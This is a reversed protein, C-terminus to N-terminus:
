VNLNEGVSMLLAAVVKHIGAAGYGGLHGTDRADAVVHHFVGGGELLQGGTQEYLPLFLKSVRGVLERQLKVIAEADSPEEKLINKLHQEDGLFWALQYKDQEGDELLDHPGASFSLLQDIQKM